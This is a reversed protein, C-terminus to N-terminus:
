VFQWVDHRKADTNNETKVSQILFDFDKAGIFNVVTSERLGPLFDDFQMLRAIGYFLQFLCLCFAFINNRGDLKAPHFLFFSDSDTNDPFYINDHFACGVHIDLLPEVM